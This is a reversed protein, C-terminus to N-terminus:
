RSRRCATHISASCTRRTTLISVRVQSANLGRTIILMMVCVLACFSLPQIGAGEEFEARVPFYDAISSFGNRLSDVLRSRGTVHARTAKVGVYYAALGAAALALVAPHRTAYVGAAILLLPAAHFIHGFAFTGIVARLPPAYVASVARRPPAGAHAADLVGPLSSM